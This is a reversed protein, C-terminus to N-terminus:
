RRAGSGDTAVVRSSPGRPAPREQAAGSGIVERRRPAVISGREILTPPTAVTASPPTRGEVMALVQMFAQHGMEAMPLDIATLPPNSFRVMDIDHLTIASMEHPVDLGAEAFARLAGVALPATASLLATSPTGVDLVRRLATYGAEPTIDDAAVHDWTSGRRRQVADRYADVRRVTSSFREPGTLVTVRRHGAEHLRDFALRMAAADDVATHPLSTTSSQNMVVAPFREGVFPELAEPTLTGAGLIVGAIGSRRYEEIVRRTEDADSPLLGIVLLHGTERAAAHAGSVTEAYIPSALAHALLAVTHGRSTRLARAVLNPRYDLETLAQEIRRRTDPAIRAKADNSLFRSVVSSDVGAREAVDRMTVPRNGTM